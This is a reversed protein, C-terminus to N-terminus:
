GYLKRIPLNFRDLSESNGKKLCIFGKEFLRYGVVILM